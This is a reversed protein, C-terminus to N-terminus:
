QNDIVTKGTKGGKDGRQGVDGVRRCEGGRENM